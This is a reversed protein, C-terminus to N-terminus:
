SACAQDWIEYRISSSRVAGYYADNPQAPSTLSSWSSVNNPQQYTNNFVMHSTRGGPMQDLRNHVEGFIEYGAPQWGNVGINDIQSGNEWFYFHHTTLVFTMKYSTTSGVPRALHNDQLWKGVYPTWQSFVIRGSAQKWWGVQAWLSGGNNLMVWASVGVGQTSIYPDYELVDAEVGKPWTSPTAATGAFWM